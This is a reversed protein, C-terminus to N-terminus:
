SANAKGSPRENGHPPEPAPAAPESAGRYKIVENLVAALAAGGAIGLAGQWDISFFNFLDGGQVGLFAHAASQAATLGTTKFWDLNAM